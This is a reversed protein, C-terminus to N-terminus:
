RKWLGRGMRKAEIAFAEEVKRASSLEPTDIGIYRVRENNGLIITDGDIVRLCRVEGKPQCSLATVTIAIVTLLFQLQTISRSLM